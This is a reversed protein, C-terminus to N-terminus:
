NKEKFNKLMLSYSLNNIYDSTLGFHIFSIFDSVSTKELKEKLYYDVAKM